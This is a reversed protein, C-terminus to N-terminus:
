DQPGIHNRLTFFSRDFDVEASLTATLSEVSRPVSTTFDVQMQRVVGSAPDIWLVVSQAPTAFTSRATALIPRCVVGEVGPLPEAALYELDYETPLQVLLGHLSVQRALVRRARLEGLSGIGEDSSWISEGFALWQVDGSSGAVAPQIPSDRFFAVFMDTSQSYIQARRDVPLSGRRYRIIVDYVRTLPQEIVAIARDVAAEAATPQSASWLVVLLLVAASSLMATPIVFRQFRKPHSSHSGLNTGREFSALASSIRRESNASDEYLTTLLGHVIQQQAISAPNRPELPAELGGDISQHEDDDGRPPDFKNM